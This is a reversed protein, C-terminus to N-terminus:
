GERIVYHMSKVREDLKVIGDLTVQTFMVVMLEVLLPAGLGVLVPCLPAKLEISIELRSPM